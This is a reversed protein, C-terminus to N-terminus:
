ETTNKVMDEVKVVRGNLYAQRSESNLENLTQWLINM